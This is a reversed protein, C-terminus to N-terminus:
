FQKPLKAALVQIPVFNSSVAQGYDSVLCQYNGTADATRAQLLVVFNTFNNRVFNAADPQVLLEASPYKTHYVTGLNSFNFNHLYTLFYLYFINLKLQM